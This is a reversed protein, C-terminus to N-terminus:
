NRSFRWARKGGGSAGFIVIKEAEMVDTIFKELLELSDVLLGLESM